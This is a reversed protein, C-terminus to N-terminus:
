DYQVVRGLRLVWLSLQHNVLVVASLIPLPRGLRAPRLLFDFRERFLLVVRADSGKFVHFSRQDLGQCVLEFVVFCGRVVQLGFGRLLKGFRAM